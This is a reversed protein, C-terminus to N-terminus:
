SSGAIGGEGIGVAKEVVERMLDVLTCCSVLLHAEILEADDFVEVATQDIALKGLHILYGMRHSDFEALLKWNRRRRQGDAPPEEYPAFECTMNHSLLSPRRWRMWYGEYITEYVFMLHSKTRNVMEHQENGCEIVLDKQFAKRRTEAVKTQEEEGERKAGRYLINQFGWSYSHPQVKRYALTKSGYTYIDHLHPKNLAHKRIEYILMNDMGKKKKKKNKVSDLSNFILQKSSDRSSTSTSPSLNSLSPTYARRLSMYSLPSALEDNVTAETTVSPAQSLVSATVFTESSTHSQNSGSSSISNSTIFTSISATSDNNHIVNTDVKPITTTNQRKEIELNDENDNVPSVPRKNHGISLQVVTEIADGSELPQEDKEHPRDYVIDDYANPKDYTPSDVADPKQFHENTPISTDTM